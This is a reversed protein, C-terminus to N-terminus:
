HAIRVFARRAEPLIILRAAFHCACSGADISESYILDKPRPRLYKNIFELPRLVM